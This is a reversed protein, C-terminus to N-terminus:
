ARLFRALNADYDSTEASPNHVASRPVGVAGQLRQQKGSNQAAVAASRAAKFQTLFNAATQPDNSSNAIHQLEVPLSQKWAAFEPSGAVQVWDPHQAALQERAQQAQAEAQQQEFTVQQEYLPTVAQQTFQVNAAQAAALQKIANAARPDLEALDTLAENLQDMDLAPAAASTEQLKRQLAAQRGKESRLQHELRAKEQRLAELEDVQQSQEPQDAQLQENDQTTAVQEPEPAAAPNVGAAPADAGDDLNQALLQEYEQDAANAAESM